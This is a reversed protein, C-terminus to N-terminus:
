MDMYSESRDTINSNNEVWHPEDSVNNNPLYKYPHKRASLVSLQLQHLGHQDTHCTLYFIIKLLSNRLDLEGPVEDMFSCCKFPRNRAPGYAGGSRM